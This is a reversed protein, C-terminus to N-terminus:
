QAYSVQTYSEQSSQTPDDMNAMEQEQSPHTMAQNQAQKFEELAQTMGRVELTRVDRPPQYFKHRELVRRRGLENYAHPLTYYDGFLV